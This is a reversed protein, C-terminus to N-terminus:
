IKESTAFIKRVESVTEGNELYVTVNILNEGESLSLKSSFKGQSDSKVVKDEIPGNVVVLSNASTTGSVEVEDEEVFVDKELDLTLQPKEEQEIEQYPTPTPTVKKISTLRKPITILLFAVLIGGAFGLFIAIITERNMFNVPPLCRFNKLLSSFACSITRNKKIM